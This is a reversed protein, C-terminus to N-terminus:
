NMLKYYEQLKTKLAARNAQRDTSLAQIDNFLMQKEALAPKAITKSMDAKMTAVLANYANNAQVNLKRSTFADLKNIDSLFTRKADVQTSQNTANATQQASAISSSAIFLIGAFFLSKM